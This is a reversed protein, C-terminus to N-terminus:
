FFLRLDLGITRPQNVLLRPRGPTEAAISRSDSLNAHENTLNKAVLAVQWTGRDLAVRADLLRYAPRERTTFIGDVSTLNNASFSRGIYSYNLSTALDLTSSIPQTWVISANGTWNPVQFVPDGVRQPSMPSSQTIKADEYGVGLSVQLPEVPRADIELEGGRSEAAGANARYEFGCGLLVNQQINKWRIDYATADVTLRNDLWGSKGGIEYDGLSDSKFFRTDDVTIGSPLESACLAAPVSPVQGGPRFGEAASAYTMLSPSLQYQLALRPTARTDSLKETPNVLQSPAGPAQTVSGEQYGGMSTQDSSYRLGGTAELAPSIRYTLQVYEALERVDNHFNAGYIEDPNAPNPCFGIVACTGAGGYAENLIAGYGPAYAPPFYSTLPLRGHLHSYFVGIVYQLPGQLSSVFRVEQVFSQYDKEESIASPIPGPLSAAPFGPISLAALPLLSAYVFDTEDETEWVKRDFYASAATLEGARTAWKATLSYLHWEDFGGEPINFFRDQTFNNPTLVPLAVSGTPPYPYGWQNQATSVDSMPFGNYSTRQLMMWPTITLSETPRITVAASGGYEETAAVNRVTTTLAATQTQPFCTVGATSPDTCYRRSLFGGEEDYFGSLRLAVRDDILPINFIGDGSYNPKVTNWTDSVETHLEGSFKGLDPQQTIIRVTGGMSRAGYLTGQPGRLVEIHDIDLIRPDLSDPLPVDNVYFGTTNDGSIGRISITRSTGVGDGTMAFALNPVKTGYDMFSTIAQQQLGASSFTSMSLPVTQVNEARREATVIVEALQDQTVTQAAASASSLLLVAPGIATGAIAAKMKHLM